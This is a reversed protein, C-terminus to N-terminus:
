LQAWVYDVTVQAQLCSIWIFTLLVTLMALRTKM